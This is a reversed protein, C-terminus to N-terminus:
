VGELSLSFQELGARHPRRVQGGQMEVGEMGISDRDVSLLM